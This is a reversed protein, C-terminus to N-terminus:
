SRKFNITFTTGKGEESVLALTGGLKEITLKTLYLGLGTGSSNNDVKYFMEFIRERRDSPIGLGNDEFSLQIKNREELLLVKLFPKEKSPDMYKIANEILNQLVSHILIEDTKLTYSAPMNIDMKMREFGPLHKLDSLIDIIMQYVNVKTFTLEMDKVKGMRLLESVMGDLKTSTAHMYEFYERAKADKVDSMALTTLGIM